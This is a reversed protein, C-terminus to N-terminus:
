SAIYFSMNPVIVCIYISCLVLSHDVRVKMADMIAQDLVTDMSMKGMLRPDKFFM